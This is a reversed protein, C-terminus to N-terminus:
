HARVSQAAFLPTAPLGFYLASASVTNGVPIATLIQANNVSLRGSTTRMQQITTLGFFPPFTNVSFDPLTAAGMIATIRSFRLAFTDTSTSGPTIGSQPIYATVPFAVTMGPQLSSVSTSGNFTNVPLTQILGKDVIVFPQVSGALTVVIQDGPSLQGNLVSNSPAFAADTAVLTFQNTSSNPVSVVVGEILDSAAIIPEFFTATITGDSNLIADMVADQNVQVCSSNQASCDFQTASSTLATINGRTATQITISSSTAAIVLGMIDDLHAVQGSVLDTSASPLTSVSFTNAITLDVGTVIQGTQTLATGLNANLDLAVVQNSAINLTTSISASGVGGTVSTLSGAACGPTGPNPQTCFTVRPAAFTVTVLDYTGAPISSQLVLLTSDSTVRNFEAGYTPSVLNLAVPSGGSSPTLSIGTITAAFAQVSLQSSPSPPTATLVVSITAGSTCNATCGGQPVGSCSALSFAAFLTFALALAKRM